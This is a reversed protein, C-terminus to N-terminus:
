KKGFAFLNRRKAMYLGTMMVGTSLLLLSDPEPTTAVSLTAQNDFVTPDTVGFLYLDEAVGTGFPKDPNGIFLFTDIGGPLQTCNGTFDATTDCSISQGDLASDPISLTISTIVDPTGNFLDVCFSGMPVNGNCAGASFMFGTVGGNSDIINCTSPDGMNCPSPDVAGARLAHAHNTLGFSLALVFLTRLLYKM